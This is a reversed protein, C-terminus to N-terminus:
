FGGANPDEYESDTNLFLRYTRLLLFPMVLFASLIFGGSILVTVPIVEALMGSLLMAVPTLSLIVAGMLGLVKGRDGEPVVLQIVSNVIVHMHATFIGVVFMLPIMAYFMLHPFVAMLALAGYISTFFYRSRHSSKIHLMATLAFGSFMGATLSGLVLGYRAPGLGESQHFLPVLLILTGVSVFTILAFFLIHCRLGVFHWVFRIGGKLDQMFSTRVGDPKIKEPLQLFTESAASVLYSFGNFLFLLPAGLWQYLFGALMNGLVSTGTDTMGRFSNAKTLLTRPVISPILANVAPNFFVDCLGIVIAAVFIMWIELGGLLAALAVCLVCVGRVVDMAVILWKKNMRDVVIGAFPSVFIAPLMASAMISGMIATSNTASLIWFALVVQYIKDGLQSVLHGQLLLVFNRSWLTEASAPKERLRIGSDVEARM